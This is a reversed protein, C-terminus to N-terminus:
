MSICAFHAHIQNICHNNLATICLSITENYWLLSFYDKQNCFEGFENDKVRATEELISKVQLISLIYIKDNVPRTTAALGDSMLGVLGVGPCAM